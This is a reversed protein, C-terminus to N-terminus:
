RYRSDLTQSSVSGRTTHHMSLGDVADAKLDSGVTLRTIPNERRHPQPAASTTLKNASLDDEGLLSTSEASGTPEALSVATESATAAASKTTAAHPFWPENTLGFVPIGLLLSTRSRRSRHSTSTWWRQMVLSSWGPWGSYMRDSVAGITQVLGGGDIRSEPPYTVLSQLLQGGGVYRPPSAVASRGPSIDLSRDARGRVSALEVRSLQSFVPSGVRGWLYNEYNLNGATQPCSQSPDSRQTPLSKKPDCM